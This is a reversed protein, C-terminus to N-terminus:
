SDSVVEQVTRQRLRLRELQTLPEIPERNQTRVRVQVESSAPAVGSRELGVAAMVEDINTRVWMNPRREKRPASTNVVKFTITLVQGPWHSRFWM